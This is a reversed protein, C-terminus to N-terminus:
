NNDIVSFISLMWKNMHISDFIAPFTQLGQFFHECDRLSKPGFPTIKGLQLNLTFFFAKKLVEVADVLM